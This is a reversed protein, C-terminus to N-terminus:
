GSRPRTAGSNKLLVVSRGLAFVSPCTRVLVADIRTVLKLLGPPLEPVTTRAIVGGSLPFILCENLENLVVRYGPLAREFAAASGFLMQPIACNASWPDAPDNAVARDSFVDVDYSWGEHRMLRLLLRMLLSTNLDQIIVRGGPRLVRWLKTLFQMPNALHHIMHSCVAVDISSERFPLRLADATVDVWDNRLYDTQILRDTELYLRSFGAGCGLEVVVDDPDIFGNMWTFRQRLLVDLNRFRSKLFSDRAAAVDGEQRM